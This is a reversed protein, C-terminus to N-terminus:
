YVILDLTEVDWTKVDYVRCEWDFYGMKWM